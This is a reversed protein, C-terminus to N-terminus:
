GDSMNLVLEFLAELAEWLLWKKRIKKKKLKFLTESELAM